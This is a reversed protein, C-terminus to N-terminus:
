ARQSIAHNGFFCGGPDPRHPWLRLPEPVGAIAETIVRNKLPYPNKSKGWSGHSHPDSPTPFDRLEWCGMEEIIKVTTVPYHLLTGHYPNM